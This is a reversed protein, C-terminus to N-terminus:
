YTNKVICLDQFFSIKSTEINIVVELRSTGALQYSNCLFYKRWSFKQTLQKVGTGSCMTFDNLNKPDVNPIKVYLSSQDLEIIMDISESGTFM